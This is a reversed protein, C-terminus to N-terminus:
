DFEEQLLNRLQERARSLLSKVTGEKKQLLQAIEAISYGEYYFLHIVDQYKGPLQQVAPLVIDDDAFKQEYSQQAFVADDQLTVKKRWSSVHMKNACQITVHLLWAKLHEDSKIKHSHQMLKFFVESFVEDADAQQHTKVTALRYVMDAYKQVAREVDVRYEEKALPSLALAFFARFLELRYWRIVIPYCQQSQM